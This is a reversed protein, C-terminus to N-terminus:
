RSVMIAVFNWIDGLFKENSIGDSDLMDKLDPSMNDIGGMIIMMLVILETPNMDSRITGESIGLEISDRLMELTEKRVKLIEKIYGTVSLKPVQIDFYGGDVQKKCTEYYDGDIEVEPSRSDIDADVGYFDFRGSFFYNFAQLYGPYVRSFKYYAKQFGSLKKVATKGEKIEDKILFNLIIAGRLVIAFFLEEKNEFYIYLTSRGLDIERAISDMSVEDYGRSFFLKEAAKLIDNRRQERKRETRGTVPM